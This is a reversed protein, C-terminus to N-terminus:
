GSDRPGPGGRDPALRGAHPEHGRVPPEGYAYANDVLNGIIRDLQTAIMRFGDGANLELVV